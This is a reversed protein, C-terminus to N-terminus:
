TASTPRPPPSPPSTLRTFLSASLGGGLIELVQIHANAIANGGRRRELLMDQEGGGRGRADGGGRGPRLLKKVQLLVNIKASPEELSEKVPIPVREVLKALEM